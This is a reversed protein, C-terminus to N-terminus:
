KVFSEKWQSNIADIVEDANERRLLYQQMRNKCADETVISPYLVGLWPYSGKQAVSSILDVFPEGLVTFEGGYFSHTLHYQEVWLKQEEESSYFSHTLRYKEVWLKKGETSALFNLFEIAAKQQEKNVQSSVTFTSDIDAYFKNKSEDDFIPFPIFGARLSPNLKLADVYCWLGQEVMAAKGSAFDRQQYEGDMEAANASMNDRFFDIVEFLKTKDIEDTYTIEGKNMRELFSNFYASLKAPDSSPAGQALLATHTLQLIQSAAWNEKLLGSFPTIGNQKLVNCVETLESWTAPPTLDYKEFIDKNYIIGVGAFDMPVGYQKGNYTVAPLATPLVKKLADIGTLDVIQGRSAYEFVKSYSQMQMLAPLKNQAARASMTADGDNPIILLKVKISPHSKQFAETIDKLGAQNEQKYYYLEIETVQENTGKKQCSTLCAILTLLALLTALLKKM